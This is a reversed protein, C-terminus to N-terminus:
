IIVGSFNWYGCISFLSALYHMTRENPSVLNIITFNRQTKEGKGHYVGMDAVHLSGYPVRDDLSLLFRQSDMTSPRHDQGPHM